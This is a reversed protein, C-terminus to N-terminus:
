AATKVPKPTIVPPYLSRAALAAIGTGLYTRSVTLVFTPGLLAHAMAFCARFCLYSLFRGKTFRHHAPNTSLGSTIWLISHVYVYVM